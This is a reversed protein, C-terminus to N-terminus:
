HTNLMEFLTRIQAAADELQQDKVKLQHLIEEYVRVPLTIDKSKIVHYAQTPEAVYQPTETDEHKDSSSDDPVTAINVVSPHERLSRIMSGEGSLLWDPSLQPYVRLVRSLTTGKIDGTKRLNGNSMGVSRELVQDTLGMHEAFLALRSKVTEYM